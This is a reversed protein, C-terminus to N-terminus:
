RYDGLVHFPFGAAAERDSPARFAGVGAPLAGIARVFADTVLVEGGRAVVDGLTAARDADLGFVEHGPLLLVPGYGLGLGARIAAHHGGHGERGVNFTSGNFTALARQADLAAYVARAPDDFVVFATDHAQQAWVGGHEGIAPAIARHAAAALALAYGIGHAEARALRETLHVVLVAAVGAYRRQLEHEVGDRVFWAELLQDFTLSSLHSM